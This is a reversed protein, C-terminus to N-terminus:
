SKVRSWEQWLNYRVVIIGYESIEYDYESHSKHTMEGRGYWVAFPLVTEATITLSLTSVRRTRLWSTVTPLLVLLLLGGTAMPSANSSTAM